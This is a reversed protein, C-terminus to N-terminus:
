RESTEEQIRRTREVAMLALKAHPHHPDIRLAQRYQAEAADIRGARELAKGLRYCSNPSGPETEVARELWMLAEEREGADILANALNTLALIWGPRAEVALRLHPLAQDHHGRQDLLWGLSTNADPHRPYISLATRFDAIARDIQGSGALAVGRSYHVIANRETVRLAHDFLTLSDQWVAVQRTTLWASCVILAVGLSGLLARRSRHRGALEAAGHAAAIAIGIMPVYGYRDHMVRLGAPLLGSMPLLLALFWIWGVLVPRSWRACLTAAITIGLLGAGTLILEVPSWFALGMQAPTPRVIALDFPWVIRGLMAVIGMAAGAIRDPLPPDEIWVNWSRAVFALQIAVSALSLALLPLKEAIRPALQARAELRKLPWFDLALLVVPLAVLSSKASLCLAFAALVAAYRAAHPRRVWALWALLTLMCFLGALVDKRGSVWAVPESQLPHLAFLAAVFAAPAVRGTMRTLVILLLVAGLAHLLVDTMVWPGASTAGHADASAMYSLWTLPHWLFADPAAFAWRINEWSLGGLVRSNGTVYLPDDFVTFAHEWTQWYVGLTALVIATAAAAIRLRVAADM